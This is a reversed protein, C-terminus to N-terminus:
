AKGLVGRGCGRGVVEDREGPLRCRRVEEMTVREWEDAGIWGIYARDGFGGVWYVAEVVLRTWRSAHIPNGPLWAAADPHTATFCTTINQIYIPDDPPISVIHGLLAMRPLSAPSIPHPQQSSPSSTSPPFISPEEWRVSLTVNSGAAANRFSTAISIALLTPNGTNPECDAFYDPLGIPIGSLPVPPHPYSQSSSTTPFVTSLTGIGSLHLIRRAQIASEHITPIYLDELPQQQQPSSLIPSTTTTSILLSLATSLHILM